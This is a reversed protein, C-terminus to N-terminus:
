PGDQQILRLAAVGSAVQPRSLPAATTLSAPRFASLLEQAEGPAAGKVGIFAHSWRFRGRLDTAVGIERLAMVADETLNLSAEDKVAGLVWAGRPIARLWAAMAQSAQADAHTDFAAADLVQGTDPDLLVLNYGRANPSRDVGNVYIHAFDGVEEGASRILLAPGPRADSPFLYPDDRVEDLRYLRDFRLRVPLVGEADEPPSWSFRIWEWRQPVPARAVEQGDVILSVTQGPGPAYALLEFGRLTATEPLLLRVEHRQAWVAKILPVETPRAPPSWGEGLFLRGIGETLDVESPMSAEDRRVRYLAIDREEAVPELPFVALVFQELLPPVRDRHIMVYAVDLFRLVEAAQRRQDALWGPPAQDPRALWTELRSLESRLTQHFPEDAANIMTILVDLLPAESFYQFKFEPNRSTNGGLIPRHHATQYWQEFM